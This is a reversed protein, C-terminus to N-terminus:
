DTMQQIASGSPLAGGKINNMKYTQDNIAKIDGPTSLGEIPSYAVAATKSSKEEITFTTGLTKILAETPKSFGTGRVVLVKDPTGLNDNVADILSQATTGAQVHALLVKAGKWAILAFCSGLSSTGMMAGTKVAYYGQSVGYCTTAEGSKALNPSSSTRKM